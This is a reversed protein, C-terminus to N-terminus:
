EGGNLLRILNDRSSNYHTIVHTHSIEMLAATERSTLRCMGYLFLAHRENWNLMKVCRSMDMM